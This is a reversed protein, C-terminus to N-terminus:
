LNIEDAVPPAIDISKATKSLIQPLNLPLYTLNITDIEENDLRWQADIKQGKIATYLKGGRMLFLQTGKPSDELKGMYTFPAPPAVPTPPPPPPTAKVKAVKPMVLWSHVKFVNDVKTNLPERQLKQWSIIDDQASELDTSATSRKVKNETSRLPAAQRAQKTEVLEIADTDETDDKLLVWVMLVFVILLMMGLRKPDTKQNGKTAIIAM